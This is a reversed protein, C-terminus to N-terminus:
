VRASVFQYLQEWDSRSRGALAFFQDLLQEVVSAFDEYESRTIQRFGHALISKNRVFSRKQIDVPRVQQLLPDALAALLMYGNLLTISSYNGDRNPQLGRPRFGLATEIQQYRDNLVPFRQKLADIDPKETWVGYTALRHQSMLELCRYRLLAAMDYRQQAVRRMANAHLSGLLPLIADLNALTALMNTPQNLDYTTQALWELARRQAALRPRIAELASPLPQDLLRQLTARAQLDFADWQAYAAALERWAAYTQADPLPARRALDAYIQEARVYDHANFANAAEAAELDGFVEYPDPPAILRQSGPEVQNQDTYKSEIYLTGLNLIYAAKALGVSMLKTGATLDVLIEERKLDSWEDIIVTRLLRYIQNIDTYHAEKILWAPNPPQGLREAVRTPFDATEKTLFFAVRQPQLAGILLAATDPQRSGLLILATVRREGVHQRFHSLQTAFDM